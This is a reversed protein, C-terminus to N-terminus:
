AGQGRDQRLQEIIQALISVAIEAPTRAGIRLGVPGFLRAIEPDTFGRKKLREVRSAHTKGSGLCGVYFADSRLATQLAPDDLKPDHTLTVVATRRDIALEALAKDPWTLVRAVGPFREETSFAARPDIVTVEFGALAAMQSLPQAVHVAGVIALRLPPNFPSLFVSAGELDVTASKDRLAATRAADFLAPSAGDPAPEHPYLLQQEGTPLTTALVVPRKDRRDRLLQDLLSSKM